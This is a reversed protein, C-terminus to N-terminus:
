LLDMNQKVIPIPELGAIIASREEGSGVMLDWIEARCCPCTIFTKIDRTHAVGTICGSCFVHNCGTRVATEITMEDFCVGCMLEDTSKFQGISVGIPLVKMVDDVVEDDGFLNQRLDDFDFELRRYHEIRILNIVHAIAQTPFRMFTGISASRVANPMWEDSYLREHLVSNSLIAGIFHGAFERMSSASREAHDEVTLEVGHLAHGPLYEVFSDTEMVSFLEAHRVRRRHERESSITVHPYEEEEEEVPPPHLTPHVETILQRLIEHREHVSPVTSIAFDFGHVLVYLVYNPTLQNVEHITSELDSNEMISLLNDYAVPDPCTRINHGKEGCCRCSNRASM